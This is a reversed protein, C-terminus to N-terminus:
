EMFSHAFAKFPRAIQLGIWDFFHPIRHHPQPAQNLGNILNL